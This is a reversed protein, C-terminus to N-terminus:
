FVFFQVEMVFILDDMRSLSFLHDEVTLVIHFVCVCETPL